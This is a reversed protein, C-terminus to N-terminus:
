AHCLVESLVRDFSTAPSLALAPVMEGDLFRRRKEYRECLRRTARSLRQRAASYSIGFHHAIREYDWEWLYRCVVIERDGSDLLELLARAGERAHLASEPWAAPSRAAVLEDWLAADSQAADSQMVDSQAARAQASNQGCRTLYDSQGVERRACRRTAKQQELLLYPLFGLLWNRLAWDPHVVRAAEFRHASRHAAEFWESFLDAAIEDCQSAHWFGCARVRRLVIAQLDLDYRAFFDRVWERAAGPDAFLLPQSEIFTEERDQNATETQGSTRRNHGRALFYKEGDFGRRM